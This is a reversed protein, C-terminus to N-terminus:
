LAKEVECEILLISLGIKSSEQFRCNLSSNYMSNITFRHGKIIFAFFQIGLVIDPSVPLKKYNLRYRYGKGWLKKALLTEATGKKLKGMNILVLLNTGDEVASRLEDFEEDPDNELLANTVLLKVLEM